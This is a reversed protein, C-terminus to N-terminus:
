NERRSPAASNFPFGSSPWPVGPAIESATFVITKAGLTKESLFDLTSTLDMDSAADSCANWVILDYKHKRLKESAAEM